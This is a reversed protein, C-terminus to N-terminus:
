PTDRLREALTRAETAVTAAHSLHESASSGVVGLAVALEIRTRRLYHCGAVVALRRAHVVDRRRSRSLLVDVEIGAHACVLELLREIPGDWRAAPNVKIAALVEVREVRDEGCVTAAVSAPPPANTARVGVRVADPVNGEVWADRVDDALARVMGDFSRRGEVGDDFGALDLARGDDLWPPTPDLGVLARHSTWTSASAITVVGARVPNNHVYAILRGVAAGGLHVTRPRDAFAPGLRRHRRNLGLAVSTNLSLMLASIPAEGAILVLHVHSSMLAFAVLTWDTRALSSALAHLYLRRELSGSLRFERNVFRSIVHVVSGPAHLRATRPM